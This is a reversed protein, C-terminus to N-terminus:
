KQPNARRIQQLKCLLWTEPRPLGVRLCPVWRKPKLITIMEKTELHHDAQFDPAENIKPTLTTPPLHTSDSKPNYLLIDEKPLQIFSGATHVLTTMEDHPPVPLPNDDFGEIVDDVSVRAFDAGITSDRPTDGQSSPHV